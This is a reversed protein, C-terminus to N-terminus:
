GATPHSVMLFKRAAQSEDGLQCAVQPIAVHDDKGSSFPQVKQLKRERLELSLVDQLEIPQLRVAICQLAEDLLPAVHIFIDIEHGVVLDREGTEECLVDLVERQSRAVVLIGVRAWRGSLLSMRMRLAPGSSGDAGSFSTVTEM